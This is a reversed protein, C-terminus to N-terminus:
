IALAIYCNKDSLLHYATVALRVVKHALYFLDPKVFVGM